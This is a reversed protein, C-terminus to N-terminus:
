WHKFNRYVRVLSGILWDGGTRQWPGDSLMSFYIMSFNRRYQISDRIIIKCAVIFSFYSGNEYHSARTVSEGTYVEINLGPYIMRRGYIERDKRCRLFIRLVIPIDQYFNMQRIMVSPAVPM